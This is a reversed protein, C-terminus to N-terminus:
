IKEGVRLKASRARPNHQIERATPTIPRKTIISFEPKHECACVPASAPCVCERSAEKFFRKVIRDELSHYSIVGVRGGSGLVNGMASLALKLNELESNVEIRIAQFTKALLKIKSKPLNTFASKGRPKHAGPVLIAEVLMTTTDIHRERRRKVIREAYLGANRVEGYEKFIQKLKQKPYINVVERASIRRDRADGGKGSFTMQLPGERQFSFGREGSDIQHSSVGLDLLVGHVSQFHNEKAITIVNKFNDQAVILQGEDIFSKLEKRSRKLADQDSDIGLVKGNPLSAQLMARAHGGGGLTCDIYNGGPKINLLQIVERVLVPRHYIIM